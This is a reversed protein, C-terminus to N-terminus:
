CLEHILSERQKELDKIEINLKIKKNFHIEKKIRNKLDILINDLEKIKDSIEKVKVSNKDKLVLYDDIYISANFLIINDVIDSYFRYFNSFSYGTIDLNNLFQEERNTLSSLDIWDTYILEEVTNKSEDSLNKRKHGVNILVKNNIKFVILLPYPITRQIIEAILKVKSDEKLLVEIFAIEDYERQEDKYSQINITDEKFSYRWIIRDIDNVFIEKDKKKLDANEYFLKKFITNGVECSKPINFKDFIDGM